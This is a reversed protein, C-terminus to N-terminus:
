KELTEISTASLARITASRFEMYYTALTIAMSGIILMWPNVLWLLLPVAFYYARLAQTFNTGALENLRAAREVMLADETSVEHEAITHGERKYAGILISVLNFQRIAWTFRLLAYTMVGAIAMVKFEFLLLSDRKAFPIAQLVDVGSDKGGAWAFLGGVILLTTSTFFTCTHMLNGVLIADLARNDRHFAQKMWARRYGQMGTALNPRNKGKFEAFWLYFLWLASWLFLGIIDIRQLPIM